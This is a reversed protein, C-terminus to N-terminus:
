NANSLQNRYQDHKFYNRAMIQEKLPVSNVAKAQEKVTVYAKKIRMVQLQKDRRSIAGRESTYSIPM